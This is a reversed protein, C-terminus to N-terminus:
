EFCRDYNILAERVNWISRSKTIVDVPIHDIAKSDLFGLASGIWGTKHFYAPFVALLHNEIM